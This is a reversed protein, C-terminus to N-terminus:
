FRAASNASTGWFIHLSHSSTNLFPHVQTLSLSIYVQQLSLSSLLATPVAPTPWPQNATANFFSSILSVCKLCVSEDHATYSRPVTMRLERAGVRCLWRLSEALAIPIRCLSDTWVQEGEDRRLVRKMIGMPAILTLPTYLLDSRHARFFTLMNRRINNDNRSGYRRLYVVPEALQTPSAALLSCCPM